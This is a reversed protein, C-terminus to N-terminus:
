TTALIGRLRRIHRRALSEARTPQHAIMAELIAAHDRAADVPGGRNAHATTAMAVLVQGELRGLQDILARNGSLERVSAHFAIDKELAIKENGSVANEMHSAVVDGLSALQSSDARRTASRAALGDLLERVDYVDLLEAPALRVVRAGKHPEEQGLGEYLLRQVAERVPSRSVAFRRALMPVSLRMGTVMRGDLIADRLQAYVVDATRVRSLQTFELDPIAEEEISLAASRM